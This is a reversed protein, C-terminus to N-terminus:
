CLLDKFFSVYKAKFTSFDEKRLINLKVSEKIYKISDSDYSNIISLLNGLQEMDYETELLSHFGSDKYWSKYEFIDPVIPFTDGIM